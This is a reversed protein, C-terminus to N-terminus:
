TQLDVLFTVFFFCVLLSCNLNEKVLNFSLNRKTKIVFCIPICSKREPFNSYSLCHISNHECNICTHNVVHYVLCWLFYYYCFYCKEKTKTVSFRLLRFLSLWFSLLFFIHNRAENSWIIQNKNKEFKEKGKGVDVVKIHSNRRRTICKGIIQTLLLSFWVFNYRMKITNCRRCQECAAFLLM